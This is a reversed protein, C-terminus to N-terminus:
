SGLNGLQANDSSNNDIQPKNQIKQNNQLNVTAFNNKPLAGSM